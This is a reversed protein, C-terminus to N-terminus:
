RKKQTHSRYSGRPKNSKNHHNYNKKYSWMNKQDVRVSNTVFPIDAQLILVLDQTEKMQLDVLRHLTDALSVEQDWLTIWSWILVVPHHYSSHHIALAHALDRTSEHGIVIPECHIDMALIHAIQM